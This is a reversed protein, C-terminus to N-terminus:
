LSRYNVSKFLKKVLASLGRLAYFTMNTVESICPIFQGGSMANASQIHGFNSEETQTFSEWWSNPAPVASKYCLKRDIKAFCLVIDVNNSACSGQEFDFKLTGSEKLQKKQCDLELIQNKFNTGGYVYMKNKHIISCSEVISEKKPGRPRFLTSTYHTNYFNRANIISPDVRKDNKQTLILISDTNNKEEYIPIEPYLNCESVSFGFLKPQKVFYTIKSSQLIM